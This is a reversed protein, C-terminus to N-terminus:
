LYSGPLLSLNNFGSKKRNHNQYKPCTLFVSWRPCLWMSVSCMRNGWLWTLRIETIARESSYSSGKCNLEIFHFLTSGSRLNWESRTGTAVGINLNFCEHQWRRGLNLFAKTFPHVSILAKRGLRDQWSHIHCEPDRISRQIRLVWYFVSELSNGDVACGVHPFPEKPGWTQSCNTNGTSIKLVM